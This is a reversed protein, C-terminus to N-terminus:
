WESICCFTTHNVGDQEVKDTISTSIINELEVGRVEFAEKIMSYM